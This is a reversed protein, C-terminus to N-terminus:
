ADGEGLNRNKLSLYTIVCANGKMLEYPPYSSYYDSIRHKLLFPPIRMLLPKPPNKSPLPNKKIMM